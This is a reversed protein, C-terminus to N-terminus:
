VYADLRHTHTFASRKEIAVGNSGNKVAWAVFARISHSTSTSHLSDANKLSM